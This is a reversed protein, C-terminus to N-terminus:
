ADRRRSRRRTSSRVERGFDGQVRARGARRGRQTRERARAAESTPHPSRHAHMWTRAHTVLARLPMLRARVAGVSGIRERGSADFSAGIAGFDGEDHAPEIWTRWVRRGRQLVPAGQERAPLGGWLVEALHLSSNSEHGVGLLLVHAGLEVLRGLPSAPGFPQSLPHRAVLARLERALSRRTVLVRRRARARLEPRSTGETPDEVGRRTM